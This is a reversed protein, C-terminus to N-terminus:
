VFQSVQKWNSRNLFDKNSCKLPDDLNELIDIQEEKTCLKILTVILNQVKLQTVENKSLYLIKFLSALMKHNASLKWICWCYRLWMQFCEIVHPLLIESIGVSGCMDIADYIVDKYITKKACDIGHMEIIKTIFNLCDIKRYINSEILLQDVASSFIEDLKTKKVDSPVVKLFELFCTFLAASFDEVTLCQLVATCSQLGKIKNNTKFDDILLLSIPLVTVVNITIKYNKINNILSCYVEILGPYKNFDNVTLKKHLEQICRDFIAQCDFADSQLIEELNINHRNKFIQNLKVAYKMEQIQETNWPGESKLELYLLLLYCLSTLTTKSRDRFNTSKLTNELDEFNERLTNNRLQYEVHVENEYYEQSLKQMLCKNLLKHLTVSKRPM